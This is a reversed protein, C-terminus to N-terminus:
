HPESRTHTRIAYGALSALCEDLTFLDLCPIAGRTGLEGRALKGAIVVSATAPIQPGDGDAAIIEWHVRHPNGSSNLGSLEVHMAGSDTGARLFWESARKLATAHSPLNRLVGARALWSLLWLGFHLGKLELGARFSLAKLGYRAPFLDLDPVDCAALWRAGVPDAYRRRQLRQWGFVPMPAGNRRWPLPKGVYSLIAAVTALGRETRNGPSIGIDIADLSAFAARHADVVAGSLGPVSSAGTVALREHQRALADLAAGFGGVYDRGDALDVYHAGAEICWRAVTYDQGQFPGACNIVLDPRHQQLVRSFDPTHADVALGHLEARTRSDDQLTAAVAAARRADRGALLLRWGQERALRGAIRSGFLGYAGLLLVTWAM